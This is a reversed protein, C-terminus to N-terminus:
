SRHVVNKVSASLRGTLSRASTDLEPPMDFFDFDAGPDGEMEGARQEWANKIQSRIAMKRTNNTPLAMCDHRGALDDLRRECEDRYATDARLDKLFCDLATLLDDVLQCTNIILRVDRNSGRLSYFKLNRRRHVKQNRNNSLWSVTVLMPRGTFSAFFSKPEYEHVTGHRWMSYLLEAFGRYNDPFYKEIFHVAGKTSNEGFAVFGLYDVYCFVQRPISFFGASKSKYHRSHYIAVDKVDRVISTRVGELHKIDRM